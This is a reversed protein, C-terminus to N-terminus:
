AHAAAAFMQLLLPWGHDSAMDARYAAADAGHREFYEHTVATPRSDLIRQDFTFSGNKSFLSSTATSAM